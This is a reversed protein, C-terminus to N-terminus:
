SSKDCCMRGSMELYDGVRHALDSINRSQTWVRVTSKEQDEKKDSPFRMVIGEGSFLSKFLRNLFNGKQTTQQITWRSDSMLWAGNDVRITTGKEIQHKEHSGFAAIWVRGQKGGQQVEVTPVVFGEEQGIGLLGIGLFEASVQVWPDCCVFASRNVLFKEGPNICVETIEGPIPPGFAVVGTGTFVNQFLTQGAFLRRFGSFVGSKNKDVTVAVRDLDVDGKMYLMTGGNAVISEGEKLNVKVVASEGNTLEISTPAVLSGGKTKASKPKPQKPKKASKAATATAATATKKKPAM